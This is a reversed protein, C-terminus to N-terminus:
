RMLTTPPLLPPCAGQVMVVALCYVTILTHVHLALEGGPPTGTEGVETLADCSTLALFSDVVEPTVHSDCIALCVGNLAFQCGEGWCLASNRHCCLKFQSFGPSLELAVNSHCGEQKRGVERSTVCHSAM